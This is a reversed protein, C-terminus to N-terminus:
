NRLSPKSVRCTHAHELQAYTITHIGMDMGMDMGMGTGMDMDM